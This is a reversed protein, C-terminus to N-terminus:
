LGHKAVMCCATKALQGSLEAYLKGDNSIINRLYQFKKVLEVVGGEVIVPSLM